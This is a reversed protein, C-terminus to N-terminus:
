VVDKLKGKSKKSYVLARFSQQKTLLLKKIKNDLDRFKIVLVKDKARPLTELRKWELTGRMKM